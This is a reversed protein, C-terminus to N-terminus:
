LSFFLIRTINKEKDCMHKFCFCFFYFAKPPWATAELVEIKPNKKETDYRDTILQFGVM